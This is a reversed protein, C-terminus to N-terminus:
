KCVYYAEPYCPFWFELKGSVSIFCGVYYSPVVVDSESGRIFIVIIFIKIQNSTLIFNLYIETMSVKVIGNLAYIVGKRVLLYVLSRVVDWARHWM